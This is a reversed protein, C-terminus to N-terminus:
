RGTAPGGARVRARAPVCWRGPSRGAARPGPFGVWTAARTPLGRGLPLAVPSRHLGAAQVALGVAVRPAWAPRPPFAAVVVVSLLALVLPPVQGPLPGALLVAHRGVSCPPVRFRCPLWRQGVQCRVQLVLAPCRTHPRGGHVMRGPLAVWLHRPRRGGPSNLADRQRLRASSAGGRSGDPARAVDSVRSAM